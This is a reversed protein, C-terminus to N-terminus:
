ARINAYYPALLPTIHVTAADRLSYGFRNLRPELAVIAAKCVSSEKHKSMLAAYNDLWKDVGSADFTVHKRDGHYARRRSHHRSRSSFPVKIDPSM